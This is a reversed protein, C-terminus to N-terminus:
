KAPIVPFFVLSIGSLSPLLKAIKQLLNQKVTGLSYLCFVNVQCIADDNVGLITRLKRRNAQAAAVATDLWDATRRAGKRGLPEWFVVDSLQLAEHLRNLSSTFKDHLHKLAEM